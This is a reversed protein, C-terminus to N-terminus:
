SGRGQMRMYGLGCGVGPCGLGFDLRHGWWWWGGARAGEWGCWGAGPRERSHCPLTGAGYWGGVVFLASVCRWALADARWVEGDQGPREGDRCHVAGMGRWELVLPPPLWGCYGRHLVAAVGVLKGLDSEAVHM